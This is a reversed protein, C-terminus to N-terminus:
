SCLVNHREPHNKYKGNRAKCNFILLKPWTCVTASHNVVIYYLIICYLRM